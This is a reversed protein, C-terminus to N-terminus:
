NLTINLIKNDNHVRINSFNATKDLDLLEQYSIHSIKKVLDQDDIILLNEINVNYFDNKNVSKIKAKIYKTYLTKVDFNDNFLRLDFYGSENIVNL